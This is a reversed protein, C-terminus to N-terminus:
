LHPRTAVAGVRLTANLGIIEGLRVACRELAERRDTGLRVFPQADIALTRSSRKSEWIGSVVGDILLVPMPGALFARGIGSLM